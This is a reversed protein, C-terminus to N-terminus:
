VAVRVTEEAPLPVKVVRGIVLAPEVVSVMLLILFLLSVQVIEICVFLTV